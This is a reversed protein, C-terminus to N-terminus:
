CYSVELAQKQKNEQAQQAEVIRAVDRDHASLLDALNDELVGSGLVLMWGEDFCKSM